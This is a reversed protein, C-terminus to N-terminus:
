VKARPDIKLPNQETETTTTQPEPFVFTFNDIGRFPHAPLRLQAPLPLPRSASLYNALGIPPAPADSPTHACTDYARSWLCHRLSLPKPGPIM